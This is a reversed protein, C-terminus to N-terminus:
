TQAPLFNYIMPGGVAVPYPFLIERLPTKAIERKKRAQWDRYAELSSEPPDGAKKSLVLGSKLLMKETIALQAISRTLHVDGCSQWPINEIRIHVVRGVTRVDEVALITVTVDHNLTWVQGPQYAPPIPNTTQAPSAIPSVAVVLLACAVTITPVTSRTM